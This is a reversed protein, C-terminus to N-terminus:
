VDSKEKTLKSVMNLLLKNTEQGSTVVSLLAKTTEQSAHHYNDRVRQVEAQLTTIQTTQIASTTLLTKVEDLTEKLADVKATVEHLEAKTALPTTAAPEERKGYILRALAWVIGGITVGASLIGLVVYLIFQAVQLAGPPTQALLHLM